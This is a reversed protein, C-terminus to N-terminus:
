ENVEEGQSLALKELEPDYSEDMQHNSNNFFISRKANKCLWRLMFVIFGVWVLLFAGVLLEM